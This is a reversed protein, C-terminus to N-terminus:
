YMTAVREIHMVSLKMTKFLYSKKKVGTVYVYVEL